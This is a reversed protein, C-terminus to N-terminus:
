PLELPVPSNMRNRKFVRYNGHNNLVRMMLRDLTRHTNAPVQWQQQQRHAGQGVGEQHHHAPWHQVGGQVWPGPLVRVGAHGAHRPENVPEPALEALWKTHHFVPWYHPAKSDICIYKSRVINEVDCKKSVDYEPIDEEEQLERIVKLEGKNFM